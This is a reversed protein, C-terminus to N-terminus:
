SGKMLKHRVPLRQGSQARAKSKADLLRRRVRRELRVMEGNDTEHDYGCLHLVGHIVLESLERELTLGSAAAQRSATDTAIVIDGLFIPAEGAALPAAETAPFALVDTARDHGRYQRNLRRMAADRVFALTVAAEACGVTQLTADALQCLRARNLRVLRQKNILDIM